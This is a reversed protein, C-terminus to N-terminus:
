PQRARLGADSHHGQRRRGHFGEGYHPVLAATRPGKWAPLAVRVQAFGPVGPIDDLYACRHAPNPCTVQIVRERSLRQRDTVPQRYDILQQAVM